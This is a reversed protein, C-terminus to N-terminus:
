HMRGKNSDMFLKIINLVKNSGLVYGPVASMYIYIFIYIYIYILDANPFANTIDMGHIDLNNMASISLLMRILTHKSIPAYTDTYDIGEVENYGLPGLLSKFVGNDNHKYVWQCPLVNVNYSIDVITFTNMNVLTNYEDNM